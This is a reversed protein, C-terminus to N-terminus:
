NIETARGAEEGVAGSRLPDPRRCRYDGATSEAIASGPIRQGIYCQPHNRRQARARRGRQSRYDPLNGNQPRCKNLEAFINALFKQGSSDSRLGQPM